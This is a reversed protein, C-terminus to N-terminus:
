WEGQVMRRQKERLARREVADEGEPSADCARNIADLLSQSEYRRLFEDVAQSFVQNRSLNLERALRDMRDVLSEQLSIATKIEAM